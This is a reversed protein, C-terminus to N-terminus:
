PDLPQRRRQGRDPGGSQRQRARETGSADTGVLNQFFDLGQANDAVTSDVLVGAGGNGSIVNLSGANGNAPSAGGQVHLGAGGNPLASTGYVDTGIYNFDVVNNSAGDLEVGDSTNGSIVNPRGNSVDGITNLDSEVFVGLGNPAPSTGSPDTGIFNGLM